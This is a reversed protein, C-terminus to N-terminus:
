GLGTVLSIELFFFFVKSEAAGERGEEVKSNSKEEFFPPHLFSFGRSGFVFNRFLKGGKKRKEVFIPSLPQTSPRVNPPRKRGFSRDKQIEWWSVFCCSSSKTPPFSPISPSPLFFICNRISLKEKRKKVSHLLPLPTAREELIWYFGETQRERESGGRRKSLEKIRNGKRKGM